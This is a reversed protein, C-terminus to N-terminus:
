SEALLEQMSQNRFDPAFLCSVGRKRVPRKPEPHQPDPTWAPPSSANYSCFSFDRRGRFLRSEKLEYKTAARNKKRPRAAGVAFLTSLFQSSRVNKPPDGM